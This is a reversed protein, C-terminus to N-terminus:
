LSFFWHRRLPSMPGSLTLVVTVIARDKYNILKINELAPRVLSRGGSVVM